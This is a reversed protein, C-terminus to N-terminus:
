DWSKRGVFALLTTQNDAGAPPTLAPGYIGPARLAEDPLADVLELQRQVEEADLREDLGVARALDWGHILLDGCLFRDIAEEFTTRGFYGDYAETARESDELDARVIDRVARFAGLPDEEVSPVAAPQRGVLGLFMGHADVVHRVVDLATWGECPSPSDWREPPTAAIKAEFASALRSYRESIETM